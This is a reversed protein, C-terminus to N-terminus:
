KKVIKTSSNSTSCHYARRWPRRRRRHVPQRGDTQKNGNDVQGDLTVSKDTGDTLELCSRLHQRVRVVVVVVVVLHIVCCTARVAKQEQANHQPFMSSFNTFRHCRPRVLLVIGTPLQHLIHRLSDWAAGSINDSRPLSTLLRRNMNPRRAASPVPFSSKHFSWTMLLAEM